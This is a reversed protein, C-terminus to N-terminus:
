YLEGDIALGILNLCGGIALGGFGIAIITWSSNALLDYIPAFALTVPFFVFAVLGLFFGLHEIILGLSLLGAILQSVVIVITGPVKFLAGM